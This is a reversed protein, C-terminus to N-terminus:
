FTDQKEMKRKLDLVERYASRFKINHTKTVIGAIDKISIDEMLMTKITEEMQEPIDEEKIGKEMGESIITYEGRPERQSMKSIIDTLNGRMIEEHAKTLERIVAINRNGFVEQLQELFPKIRHPAEYFIVTRMEAALEQIEKKRKGAKNSLFGAFMFNDIKLGCVTLAAIAACAGPIPTVCIGNECAIKILLAGPDSIGPTGACTVLAIQEGNKLRDILEPGSTKHNHQNYSYLRTSIEYHNCLKKTHTTNEAAILNVNKLTKIARLTIDELNGIPTSVIFLTGPAKTDTQKNNM